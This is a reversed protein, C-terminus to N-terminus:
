GAEKKPGRDSGFMLVEAVREERTKWVEHTEETVGFIMGTALARVNFCMAWPVNRLDQLIVSVLMWTDEDRFRGPKIPIVYDGVKM